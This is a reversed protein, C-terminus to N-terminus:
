TNEPSTRLVHDSSTRTVLAERIAEALESVSYPKRLIKHQDLLDGAGRAADGSFGSTLLIRRGPSIELVKRALDFGSMGGPMVVDSFVLDVNDAQELIALANPGNDAELVHYGLRKLREVTLARVQANDEVVLITEGQGHASPLRADGVKTRADADSVKPLYINVVTGRGPESYISVHGNSQKVFGYLTSLGLGTGKGTGKTTFFPEFVHRMVDPHIGFGTDSVSLRVYEGATLGAERQAMDEDINANATELRLSGGKPMADRANIALNLVANEIESPDVRMPWIDHALVTTLNISEGLTRRLLESMAVVQDNLNLVQTELRRQRSFTLLRQNLRAGMQAAEQAERVYKLVPHGELEDEVMELNGTIVALLNNSDHAVGGTLKGLADMRQAQVLASQTLERQRIEETLARTREEVKAELDLQLQKRQTIDRLVVTFIRENDLELKSISAEAPFEEGSKRLGFIEQREGMKRAVVSAATFAGIHKAHDQRFRAPLLMNMPQGTVEGCTYGFIKEAGENFMKIRHREDISIIADAAIHLIGSLLAESHERAREGKRRETIDVGSGVAQVPKGSNNHHVEGQVAVWREDNNSDLIRLEFAFSGGEILHQNRKFLFDQRNNPHIRALVSDFTKPADPGMGFVEHFDQQWEGKGTILDVEFLAVGAAERTLRLRAEVAGLNHGALGRYICWVAVVNYAPAFLGYVGDDATFNMFSIEALTTIVCAVMLALPDHTPRRAHIANPQVSQRYFGIAGILSMAIILYEFFLKLIKRGVDPMIAQSFWEAHYLFIGSVAGVLCLVFLNLWERAVFKREWSSFATTVLAFAALLRAAVWFNSAETPSSPAIFALMGFVSLMHQFDLLAVGLFSAGLISINRIRYGGLSTRATLFVVFCLSISLTEFFMLLPIYGGAQGRFSPSSALAILLFAMFVVITSAARVFARDRWCATKSGIGNPLQAFHSSPSM